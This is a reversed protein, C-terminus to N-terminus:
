ATEPETAATRNHASRQAQPVAAQVAQDVNYLGWEDAGDAAAAADPPTVLAEAFLHDYGEVSTSIIGNVGCGTPGTAVVIQWSTDYDDLRDMFALANDGMTQLESWMSDSTDGFFLLDTKSAEWFDVQTEVEDADSGPAVGGSAFISRVKYDICGVLLLSLCIASFHAHM